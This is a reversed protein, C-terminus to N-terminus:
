HAQTQWDFGLEDLRDNIAVMQDAYKEVTAERRSLKAQSQRVDAAADAAKDSADNQAKQAGASLAPSRDFRTKQAAARASALTSRSADRAGVADKHRAEVSIFHRALVSTDSRSIALEIAASKSGFLSMLSLAVNRISFDPKAAPKTTTVPSIPALPALATAITPM